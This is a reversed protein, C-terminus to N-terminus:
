NYEVLLYPKGSSFERSYYIIGDNGSSEIGFFASSTTNKLISATLDISIKEGRKGGNVEAVKSLLKPRNNFNLNSESFVSTEKILQTSGSDADITDSVQLVLTVKKVQKGSLASLDFGLYSIAKVTNDVYLGKNLGYNRNPTDNRVYSDMNATIKLTKNIPTPTPTASPTAFLKTANILGAGQTNYDYGLDDATKKIADKIKLPSWDPHMQVVLAALGAVHPTAMSTGSLAVHSSDLCRYIQYVLSFLEASCINVGPAVIDPKKYDVKNYIVPGMSSFSAIKKEKDVAGVTMANSATGPTDITSASNGENGAAVAVFVGSNVANDVATSIPDSPGCDSSYTGLCAGGLSINMVSIDNAPDSDFRTQVADDIGTIIDSMFGSGNADMVKYAYINADPAVGKLVGNGAIIGAVHTGHGNDDLADEIPSIINQGGKVKLNYLNSPISYDNATSYNHCYIQYDFNSVFCIRKGEGGIAASFNKLNILSYKKTSLDYAVIQHKSDSKQMFIVGDGILGKTLDYGFVATGEDKTGAGGTTYYSLVKNTGVSINYLNYVNTSGLSKTLVLNDKIDIVPGIGPYTIEKEKGTTLNRLINKDYIFTSNNFVSYILNNGSVKAYRIHTSGPLIQKEKNQSIDYSYYGYLVDNNKTLTGTQREYYLKGNFFSNRSIASAVHLVYQDSVEDIVGLKSIVKTNGTSLNRFYLNVANYGYSVYFLNNGNLYVTYLQPDVLNKTNLNIERSSNTKFDYITIVDKGSAYAIKNNNYSFSSDFNGYNAIPKSTIKDLQRENLLSGGLDQHTSDVGTDIVAVNVGKGTLANGKADKYSAWVSNVGIMPVSDMLSVKLQMNPYVAKVYSSSKIKDIQDSDANIAVGDFVNKFEGVLVAKKDGKSGKKSDFSKKGLKGLIDKKANEHESNINVAQSNFASIRQSSSPANVASKVSPTNKFEVIYGQSPPVKTKAAKVEQPEAAFNRLDQTHTALSITVPIGFVVLLSLFIKKIRPENIESLNSLWM